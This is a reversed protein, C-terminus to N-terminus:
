NPRKPRRSRIDNGRERGVHWGMNCLSCQYVNIKVPDGALLCQRALADAHEQATQKDPHSVKWCFSAATSV